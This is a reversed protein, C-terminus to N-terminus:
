LGLATEAIDIGLKKGEENDWMKRLDLLRREYPGQMYSGKGMYVDQLIDEAKKRQPSNLDVGEEQFVMDITKSVSDYMQEDYATPPEYPDKLGGQYDLEKLIGALHQMRKIENIPQKM